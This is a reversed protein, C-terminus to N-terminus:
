RYPLAARLPSSSTARITTSSRHRDERTSLRVTVPEALEDHDLKRNAVLMIHREIVLKALDRYGIIRRFPQEAVLM